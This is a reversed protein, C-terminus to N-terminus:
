GFLYQVFRRRLISFPVTPCFLLTFIRSFDAIKLKKNIVNVHLKLGNTSLIRLRGDMRDLSSDEKQTLVVKALVSHLNQIWNSIREQRCKRGWINDRNMPSAHLHKRM